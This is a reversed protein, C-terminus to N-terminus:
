TDYLLRHLGHGPRAQNANGSEGGRRVAGIVYLAFPTIIFFIDTIKITITQTVKETPRHSGEVTDEASGTDSFTEM